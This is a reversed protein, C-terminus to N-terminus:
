FTRPNKTENTTQNKIVTNNSDTIHDCVKTHLTYDGEFLNDTIEAEKLYELRIHYNGNPSQLFRNGSLILKGHVPQKSQEDMVKPTYQVVHSNGEATEYNCAIVTNNRFVVKTTYGSEFWFNCDDEIVLAPGQLTDFRNNEILVPKRTTCLIGRGANHGFDCGRVILEPTWTVNEVVDKGLVIEEPIQTVRLLIDTPNIKEYSIVKTSGYPILTNWRIFELEDGAEFAQLGWTEYHKFRVTLTNQNRNLDVIQLHTGHINAFDDQAGAAKCNEITLLGKCGSFQFFDATSVITRGTKPTLDCNKFTVTDCFQSVMGLGHMFQIRLNDFTLNKCRQFLSCVQDRVINRSQLVCGVPFDANPYLLTCRVTQADLPEIHTFSIQDPHLHRTMQTVPDFIKTYRRNGNSPDEWEPKGTPDNEGCWILQNGRIQYRCDDNIKLTVVGDTNDLVTFEAMTPCAYDVTLNKVTINECRDLLIPTMKGHVLLTAGNGDITINKKEKLYIATFREGTPNEQQSATNTCFYGDLHYSDHRCVHYTKDKQLLIVSDDRADAFLSSLENM